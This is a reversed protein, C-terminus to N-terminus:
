DDIPNMTTKGVTTREDPAQPISPAPAVSKSDDDVTRERMTEDDSGRRIMPASAGDQGDDMSRKRKLMTKDDPVPSIVPSAPLSKSDQGDDLLLVRKFTSKERDQKEKEQMIQRLALQRVEEDTIQQMALERIKEQSLGRLDEQEHGSAPSQSPTRSIMTLEDLLAALRTDTDRRIGTENCRDSKFRLSLKLEGKSRYKFVFIAIPHEDHLEVM